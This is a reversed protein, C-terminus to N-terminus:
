YVTTALKLVRSSIRLGAKHAAANNVDFAIKGQYPKMGITGGYEAFRFSLGISLIPLDELVRVASRQAGRGRHTVVVIHLGSTDDLGSLHEIRFPRGDLQSSALAKKLEEGFSDDGFVGVRVPATDTEFSGEPWEVFRVIKAIFEAKLEPKGSGRGAASTPALLGAAMAALAVVLWTSSRTRNVSTVAGM